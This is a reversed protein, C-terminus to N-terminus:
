ATSQPVEESAKDAVDLAVLIRSVMNYSAVTATVEFVQQDNELNSRLVDFVDQPVAVLRTMYDTYELAAAQLASFAASPESRVRLGSSLTPASSVDRIIALQTSSLGAEIGLPEHQIWEYAASNLAAVRLIILERVDSPLSNSTRVAALFSNYGEAVKPANLIMGDLLTLEEGARRLRIRDAIDSVGRAPFVYPIRPM